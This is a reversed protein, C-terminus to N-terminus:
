RVTNIKLEQGVLRLELCQEAALEKSNQFGSHRELVIKECIAQDSFVKFYLFFMILATACIILVAGILKM